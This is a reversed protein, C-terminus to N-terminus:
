SAAPQPRRPPPSHDESGMIFNPAREANPFQQIEIARREPGVRCFGRLPIPASIQHVPGRMAGFAVARAIKQAADFEPLTERAPRIEFAISPHGVDRLLPDAVPRLLIDRGHQLGAVQRVAVADAARHHLHHAISRLEAGLVAGGDRGIDFGQRRYIPRLARLLSQLWPCFICRKADLDHANIGRDQELNKGRGTERHHSGARAPKAFYERDSLHHEEAAEDGERRHQDEIGPATFDPGRHIRRTREAM